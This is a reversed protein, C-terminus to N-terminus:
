NRVQIISRKAASNNAAANDMAQKADAELDGLIFDAIESAIALLTIHDVKGVIQIGGTDTPIQLYGATAMLSQAAQLATLRTNIKLQLAAAESNQQNALTSM